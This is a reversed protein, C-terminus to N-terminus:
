LLYNFQRMVDGHHSMIKQAQEDSLVEKWAGAIGKRFFANSRISKELFGKEEEQKKLNEFSSINVAEAIKEPTTNIGLFSFAKSFTNVPNEKMDEYRIVMIPLRSQETWSKVHGSWSLLKQRFQLQLRDNRSCFSYDINNMFEITRDISVGLHPSFSVAVDLPNRIIYIVARTIELAFLPEGNKTLTWADHVKHYILDDAELASQHYIKPRLQDIEDMSLDSSYVGALEDFLERSSAITSDYLHNIDFFDKEGLNLATLFARFWTNGSKPYSALWVINKLDKV